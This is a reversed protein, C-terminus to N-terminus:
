QWFTFIVLNREMSYISSTCKHKGQLDLYNIFINWFRLSFSDISFYFKSFKKFTQVVSLPGNWRLNAWLTLKWVVTLLCFHDFLDMYHMWFAKRASRSLKHIHKLLALFMIENPIMNWFHKSVLKSWVWSGMKTLIQNYLPIAHCIFFAYPFIVFQCKKRSKKTLFTEFWSNLMNKSVEFRFLFM